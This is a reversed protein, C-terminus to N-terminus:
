YTQSLLCPPLLDQLNHQTWRLARNPLKASAHRVTFRAFHSNALAMTVADHNVQGGSKFCEWRGQGKLLPPPIASKLLFYKLLGGTEM